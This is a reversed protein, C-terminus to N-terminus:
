VGSAAMVTATHGPDDLSSFLTESTTIEICLPHPMQSSCGTTISIAVVHNQLSVEALAQRSYEQKQKTSASSEM